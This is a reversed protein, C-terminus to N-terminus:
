VTNFPRHVFKMSTCLDSSGKGVSPTVNSYNQFKQLEPYRATPLNSVVIDYANNKSLVKLNQTKIFYKLIIELLINQISKSTNKM